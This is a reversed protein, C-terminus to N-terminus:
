ANVFVGAVAGTPVTRRSGRHGVQRRDRTPCCDIEVGQRDTMVLHVNRCIDRFRWGLSRAVGAATRAGATAGPPVSSSQSSASAAATSWTGTGCHLASPVRSFRWVSPRWATSSVHSPPRRCSRPGVVARKCATPRNMPVECRTAASTCAAPRTRVCRWAAGSSRGVQASPVRGPVSCNPVVCRADSRSEAARSRSATSAKPRPGSHQPRTCPSRCRQSIEDSFVPRRRTWTV